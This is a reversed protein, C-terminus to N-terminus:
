NNAEAEDDDPSEQWAKPQEEQDPRDDHSGYPKGEKEAILKGLEHAEEHSLGEDSRKEDLEEFREEEM